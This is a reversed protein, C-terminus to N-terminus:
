SAFEYKQYHNHFMYSCKASHIAGIWGTRYPDKRDARHAIKSMPLLKLPASEPMQGPPAVPRAVQADPNGVTWSVPM